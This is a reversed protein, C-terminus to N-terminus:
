VYQGTGANRVYYGNETGTPILQWIYNANSKNLSGTSIGSGNAYMYSGTEGNRNIVYYKSEDFAQSATALVLM